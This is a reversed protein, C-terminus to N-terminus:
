ESRFACKRKVNATFTLDREQKAQTTPTPLSFSKYLRRSFSSTARPLNGEEERSRTTRGDTRRKGEFAQKFEMKVLILKLDDINRLKLDGLKGWFMVMCLLFLIMVKMSIVEPM